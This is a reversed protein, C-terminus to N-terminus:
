HFATVQSSGRPLDPSRSPQPQRSFVVTLPKKEGKTKASFPQLLLSSFRYLFDASTGFMNNCILVFTRDSQQVVSREDMKLVASMLRAANFVLTFM